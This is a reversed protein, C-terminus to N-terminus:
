LCRHYVHVHRRRSVVMNCFKTRALMCNHWPSGFHTLGAGRTSSNSLESSVYVFSIKQDLGEPSGRDIPQIHELISGFIGHYLSSGSYELVGPYRSLLLSTVSREKDSTSPYSIHVDFPVLHSSRALSLVFCM